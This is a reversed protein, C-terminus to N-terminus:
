KKKYKKLLILFTLVITALQFLQIIFENVQRLEIFGFSTSISTGGLAILLCKIDYILSQSNM